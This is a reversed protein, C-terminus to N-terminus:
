QQNRPTHQYYQHAALSIGIFGWFIIGSTGVMPSNTPLRVLCSVVVARSTAAFFDFKAENGQFLWWVSWFIGSTYLITGIWGTNRLINLIASDYRDGGIGDGLPSTLGIVLNDRYIEQRVQVSGDIQINSLTGARSGIRESFPDTTSLPIILLALLLVSIILRMQLSPKLSGALVILGVFWGIWASRVLSLLLSSYGAVSATVTLIGPQNFLLLLAAAMYASFPEASNLTSWVRLSYPGPVGGNAVYQGSNTIWFIDWSPAVIYQFVGYVGMILTGWVFVRQVNQRYQPYEHWHTLIHFGFSIPLLWDLLAKLAMSPSRNVIAILFGYVVGLMALILPLGGFRHSRPLYRVVTLLTGGLFFYPALLIPSPEIYGAREDILRRLFPCLFWLWWSFGFYLIPYRSYLFFGVAGAALPFTYNIIRGGGVFVGLVAFLILGIIALWAPAPQLGPFPSPTPITSASENVFIM